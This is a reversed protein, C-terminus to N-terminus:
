RFCRERHGVKAKFSAWIFIGESAHPCRAVTQTPHKTNRLLRALRGKGQTALIRERTFLKGIKSVAKYEFTEFWSVGESEEQVIHDRLQM